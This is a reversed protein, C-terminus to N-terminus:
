PVSDPPGAPNDPAPPQAEPMSDVPTLKKARPRAPPRPMKGAEPLLGGFRRQAYWVVARERLREYQDESIRGATRLEEFGKLEADLRSPRAQFYALVTVTAFFGVFFCAQPNLELGPYHYRALPVLAYLLFGAALAATADRGYVLLRGVGWDVAQPLTM